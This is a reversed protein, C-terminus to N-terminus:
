QKLKAILKQKKEEREKNKEDARKEYLQQSYIYKVIIDEKKPSFNFFKICIIYGNKEEEDKKCRIVVAEFDVNINNKFHIVGKLVSEPTIPSGYKFAMGNASIDATKVSGFNEIDVNLDSQLRYYERRQEKFFGSIIKLKIVIHNDSKKQKAAKALCGIEVVGREFIVKVTKGSWIYKNEAAPIEVYICRKSSINVLKGTEPTSSYLGEPLKIKLKVFEGLQM